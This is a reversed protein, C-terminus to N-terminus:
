SFMDPTLLMSTRAAILTHQILDLAMPIAREQSSMASGDTTALMISIDARPAGEVMVLRTPITMYLRNKKRHLTLSMSGPVQFRTASKPFQSPSLVAKSILDKQRQVPGSSTVDLVLNGRAWVVPRGTKTFLIFASTMGPPLTFDTKTWMVGGRQFSSSTSGWTRTAQKALFLSQIQNLYELDRPAMLKGPLSQDKARAAEFPSVPGQPNIIVQYFSDDLPLPESLVLAQPEEEEVTEVIPRVDPTETLTDEPVDAEPLEIDDVEPLDLQDSNVSNTDATEISRAQARAITDKVVYTMLSIGTAILAVPILKSYKM